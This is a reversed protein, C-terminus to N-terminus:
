DSRGVLVASAANTRVELFAVRDEGPKLCLVAVDVDAGGRRWRGRHVQEVVM